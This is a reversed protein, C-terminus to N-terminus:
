VTSTYVKKKPLSFITVVRAQSPFHKGAGAGVGTATITSLECRFADRRVAATISMRVEVSVYLKALFLRSVADLVGGSLLRSAGRQEAPGSWNQGGGEEVVAEVTTAVPLPAYEPWHPIIGGSNSGVIQRPRKFFYRSQGEANAVGAFTAHSYRIGVIPEHGPTGPDGAAPVIINTHEPQQKPLPCSVRGIAPLMTHREQVINEAVSRPAANQARDAVTLNTIRTLPGSHQLTKAEAGTSEGTCDGIGSATSGASSDNTGLLPDEHCWALVRDSLWCLVSPYISCWILSHTHRLSGFHCVYTHHGTAFFYIGESPHLPQPASLFLPARAFAYRANLYASEEVSFVITANEVALGPPSALLKNQSVVM